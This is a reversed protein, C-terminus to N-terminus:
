CNATITSGQVSQGAIMTTFGVGLALIVSNILNIPNQSIAVSATANAGLFGVMCYRDVTGPIGSGTGFLNAVGAYYHCFVSQQHPRYCFGYTTEYFGGSFVYFYLLFITTEHLGSM